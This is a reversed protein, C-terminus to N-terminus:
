WIFFIGLKGKEVLMYIIIIIIFNSHTYQRGRIEPHLFKNHLLWHFNWGVHYLFIKEMCKRYPIQLSHYFLRPCTLFSYYPIKGNYCRTVQHLNSPHLGAIDPSEKWCYQLHYNNFSVLPGHLVITHLNQSIFFLLILLCSNFKPGIPHELWEVAVMVWVVYM